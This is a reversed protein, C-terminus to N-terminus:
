NVLGLRRRLIRLLMCLAPCRAVTEHNNIDPSSFMSLAAAAFVSQM